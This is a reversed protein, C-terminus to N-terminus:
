TAASIRAATNGCGPYLKIPEENRILEAVRDSFMQLEDDPTGIKRVCVEMPQDDLRDLPRDMRLM